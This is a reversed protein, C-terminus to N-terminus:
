RATYQKAHSAVSIVRSSQRAKLKANNRPISLKCRLGDPHWNFDVIGGLQHEIGGSFVRTGYGRRKPPKVKPGNLEIWEFNIRDPQVEWTLAIRGAVISLAGYKAANTVLEHLALAITQAVSPALLVSPGM